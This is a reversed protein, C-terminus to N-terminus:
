NQRSDTTTASASAVDHAVRTRRRSKKKEKQMFKEIGAAHTALNECAVESVGRHRWALEKWLKVTAQNGLLREEIGDLAADLDEGQAKVLALREATEAPADFCGTSGVVMGVLAVAGAAARVGLVAGGEELSVAALYSGPPSM